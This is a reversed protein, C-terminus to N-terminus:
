SASISSTWITMATMRTSPSFGTTGRGGKVARDYAWNRALHARSENQIGRAIDEMAAATVKSAGDRKPSFKLALRANRQQNTVQSVSPRIKNFVLCPRAPVPPQGLMSSTNGSRQDIVDQPWQKDLDVFELDAQERARQEAEASEVLKFRDLAEVLRPDKKAM